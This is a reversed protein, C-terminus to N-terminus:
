AVAARLARIREVHEEPTAPRWKGTAIERFTDPLPAIEFKARKLQACGHGLQEATLAMCESYYQEETVYGSDCLMSRKRFWEFLRAIEARTCM